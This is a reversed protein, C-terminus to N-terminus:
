SGRRGFRAPAVDKWLIAVIGGWCAVMATRSPATPLASVQISIMVGMLAAAVCFAAGPLRTPVIKRAGRVRVFWLVMYAVCIALAAGTAGLPPVLLLNLVSAIAAAVLTTRFVGRSDHATTYIAGFFSAFSSFMAGLLLFPVIRWAGFYEDTAVVRVLPRTLLIISAILVLLGAAYRRFTSTFFESRERTDADTTARYAAMQWAQSFVSTMMILISPFRNAVAFLGVSELGHTTALFYRGSINTLWWLVANPMLPISFRLMSTILQREPQWPTMAAVVNTQWLLWLNAMVLGILLGCIYGEVGWNLVVLLVVNIAGVTLAQLLGSLAFTRIHGTARAWAGLTLNLAQMIILSGGLLVLESSWWLSLLGGLIATAVASIGVVTLGVQMVAAPEHEPAMAYRLVAESVALFLVPILLDTTTVILDATGFEKPTLVVTYLPLLILGVIRGSMSGFALVLTDSALSRGRSM